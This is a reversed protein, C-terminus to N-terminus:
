KGCPWVSKLANDLLIAAQKQREAPNERLYKCLIDALQGNTADKPVCFGQVDLLSETVSKTQEEHKTKDYLKFFMVSMHTTDAFSKDVAGSVYGSVFGIATQCKQLIENGNYFQAQAGSSTAAIIIAIVFIRM